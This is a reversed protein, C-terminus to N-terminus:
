KKDLRNFYADLGTRFEEPLSSGTEGTAQAARPAERVEKENVGKGILSL